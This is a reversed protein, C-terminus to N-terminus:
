DCSCFFAPCATGVKMSSEKLVDSLLLVVVVCCLLLM